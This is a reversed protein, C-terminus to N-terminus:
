SAQGGALKELHKSRRNKKNSGNCGCDDKGADSLTTKAQL